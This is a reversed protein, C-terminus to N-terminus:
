QGAKVCVLVEGVRGDFGQPAQAVVYQRGSFRTLRTQSNASSSTSDEGCVHVASGYQRVVALVDSVEVLRANGV